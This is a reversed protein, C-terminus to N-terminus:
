GRITEMLEILRELEEQSYYEIEIRGKNKDKRNIVVKTGMITKLNEEIQKYILNIDPGKEPEKKKADDVLKKIIEKEQPEILKDLSLMIALVGKNSVVSEVYGTANSIILEPPASFSQLDVQIIEKIEDIVFAILMGDRLKGVVIQTQSIFPKQQVGFKSSLSYVPLIDGRLSMLGKIHPSMNMIPTFRELNEIGQTYALDLGYLQRGVKFFLVRKEM